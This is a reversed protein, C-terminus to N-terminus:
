PEKLFLGPEGNIFIGSVCFHFSRFQQEGGRLVANLVNRVSQAEPVSIIEGCGEPFGGTHGRRRVPSLVLFQLLIELNTIPEKFEVSNKM